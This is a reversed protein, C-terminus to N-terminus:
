RYQPGDKLLLEAQALAEPSGILHTVDGALLVFDGGPITTGLGERFVSVVSTGTKRPLDLEALTRSVAKFREGIRLPKISSFAEWSPLNLAPSQLSSTMQAFTDLQQRAQHMYRRIDESEVGYVKLARALLEVSTEVEAVVLDLRPERKLPELDRLYQARVIIQVDPRSHRVAAIVHPVIKAGSVAVVVLRAEALGAHELVEPRTADGYLIPFGEKKLEKVVEYNLEIAKFPIGLSSMAAAMNRGAIGFGVIITQGTAGGAAGGTRGEGHVTARVGRGESSVAASKWPALSQSLAIRPALRFLFPTVAITLVSVSLFMQNETVSLLGLDVGRSALVFSFEGIQALSLAVIGAISAPARNVACVVFTVVTKLGLVGVSSLVIPVANAGIFSLDLLMGVSTFFLGLFNDRLPVIDSTVQRGYPSEAIMMGSAFAGLGVSLGGLEFLYAVGLCLFLICFFFIERSRTRVVRDLLLPVAYRGTLWLGAFLTLAKVVTLAVTALSWSVHAGALIPLALMMPIVALDQFLLISLASKGYPTEIDRADQLLKIVLATSSLAVLCGLFLAKPLAVADVAKVVIAGAMVTLVVQLLGLKMFAGRLGLFRRFPFELGITFMLFIVAVEALHGASPLSSVLSLGSPGVLVGTLIFGVVTPLRVYHCITAVLTAAGFLILLQLFTQSELM